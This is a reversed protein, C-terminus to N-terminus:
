HKEKKKMLFPLIEQSTKESLELKLLNLLVEQHLKLM